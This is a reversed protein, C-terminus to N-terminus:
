MMWWLRACAVDAEYPMYRLSRPIQLRCRNKQVPVQRRLCRPPYCPALACLWPLRAMACDRGVGWSWSPTVVSLRLVACDELTSDV